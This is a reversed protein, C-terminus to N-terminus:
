AGLSTFFSAWTKDISSPDANFREELAELYAVSTADAFSDKLKSLAVPKPHECVASTTQLLRLGGLFPRFAQKAQIVFPLM